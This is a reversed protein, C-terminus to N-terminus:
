LVLRFGVYKNSDKQSFKYRRSTRCGKSSSAASGGKTIRTGHNSGHSFCWEWVNGSMDYLGYTNPKKLAVDHVVGNANDKFWAVDNLDSSGSYIFENKKKGRAAYEWEEENPLRFNEGTLKNIRKIFKLCDYFSVDTVPRHKGKFKSPNEGMVAQYLEQTVCTIMMKFGSMRKHETVSEESESSFPIQEKTAGMVFHGKPITTLFFAIGNANFQICNEGVKNLYSKTQTSAMLPKGCVPCYRATLPLPQRFTCHPNACVRSQSEIEQGTNPCYKFNDPHEQGCHPCKM